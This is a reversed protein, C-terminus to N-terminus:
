LEREYGWFKTLVDRQLRSNTKIYERCYDEYNPLEQAKHTTEYFYSFGNWHATFWKTDLVTQRKTGGSQMGELLFAVTDPRLKSVEGFWSESLQRSYVEGKLATLFTVIKRM